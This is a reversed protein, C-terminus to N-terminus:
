FNRKDMKLPVVDGTAMYWDLMRNRLTQIEGALAPDLIRNKMEGPDDKLDYFEDSEYFRKVYKYRETRCMAAKGHEPINQQASIRPYYLGTPSFYSTSNKEACNGEEGAMRGGECFVADRHRACPDAAAALLSKGFHTYGPRIGALEYVTAPLDVLEVLPDRIGRAVRDAPPKFILPVRTLGDEFTNQTKEVLGYDGTFDGHDSFFLIATNDFQGTER